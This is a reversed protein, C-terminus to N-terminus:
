SVGRNLQSAFGRALYYVMRAPFSRRPECQVEIIIEHGAADRLRLDVIAVKEGALEGLRFPTLIQLSTLRRDAPRQLVGNLLSLVLDTNREGALARGSGWRERRHCAAHM